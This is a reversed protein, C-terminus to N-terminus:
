RLVEHTEEAAARWAPFLTAAVYVPVSFLFVLAVTKFPVEPQPAYNLALNEVGLFFGVLGPAHLIFVYFYALAFGALFASLAVFGSELLKWLMVANISWGVARLVGIEKKEHPTLASSKHFLLIFFSLLTTLFLATFFGSKFDYLHGYLAAADSKQIVRVDPRLERIKRAIVPIELPNPTFAAIDTAEDTGYGLIQRAHDIGILALDNSELATAEHFIGAIPANILDGQATMFPFSDYFHYENMLALVGKGAVLAPEQLFRELDITDSVAQLRAASEAELLNLGAVTITRSAAEFRYYGWVRPTARDIGAIREIEYAWEAELPTIRGGIERQIVLDPQGELTLDVETQIANSLLLVSFLLGVLLSFLAFVSTHRGPHQMLTAAAFRLIFGSM